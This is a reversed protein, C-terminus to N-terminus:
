YNIELRCGLQSLWKETPIYPLEIKSKRNKNVIINEVFLSEETKGDKPKLNIENLLANM